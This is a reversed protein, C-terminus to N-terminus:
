FNEKRDRGSGAQKRCSAAATIREMVIQALKEHIGLPETYIFEVDPFLERAKEILEPFTKQSMCEPTLFSLTCCLGKQQGAEVRGKITEM